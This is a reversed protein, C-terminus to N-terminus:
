MDSAWRHDALYRRDEAGAWQSERVCATWSRRMHARRSRNCHTNCRHGLVSLSPESYTRTAIACRRRFSCRVIAGPRPYIAPVATYPAHLELSVARRLM